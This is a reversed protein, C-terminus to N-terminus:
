MSLGLGTDSERGAIQYDPHLVRLERDLVM